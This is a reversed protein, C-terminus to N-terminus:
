HGDRIRNIEEQYENSLNALKQLETRYDAVKKDFEEAFMDKVTSKANIFNVVAFSGLLIFIFSLGWGLMEFRKDNISEIRKVEMSLIENTLKLSALSDKLLTFQSSLDLSDKNGIIATPAISTITEIKYKYEKRLVLIFLWILISFTLVLIISNIGNIWKM